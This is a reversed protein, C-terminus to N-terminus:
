WVTDDEEDSNNQGGEPKSKAPPYKAKCERFTEFARDYNGDYDYVENTRPHVFRQYNVAALDTLMSYYDEDWIFRYRDSWETILPHDSKICSGFVQPTIKVPEKNQVAPRFYYNARKNKERSKETHVQFIYEHIPYKENISDLRMANIKCEEIYSTVNLEFWYIPQIKGGKHTQPKDQRRLLLTPIMLTSQMGSLFRKDKPIDRETKFYESVECSEADKFTFNSLYIDSDKENRKHYSVIPAQDLPCLFIVNDYWTDISQERGDVKERFTGESSGNNGNLVLRYFLSNYQQTEQNSHQALRSMLSM